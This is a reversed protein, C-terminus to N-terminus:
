RKKVFGNDEIKSDLSDTAVDRASVLRKGGIAEIDEAPVEVGLAEVVEELTGIVVNTVLVLEKGVNAMSDVLLTLGVVNRGVTLEKDEGNGPCPLGKASTEM